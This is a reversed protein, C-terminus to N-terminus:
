IMDLDEYYILSEHQSFFEVFEKERNGHWYFAIDALLNRDKFRSELFEANRKTFNLDRVLDIMKHLFDSTTLLSALKATLHITIIVM